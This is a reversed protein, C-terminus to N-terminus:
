AARHVFRGVTSASAAHEDDLQSLRPLVERVRSIAEHDRLRCQKLLAKAEKKLFELNFHVSPDTQEPM